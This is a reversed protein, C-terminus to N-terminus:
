SSLGDVYDEFELLDNVYDTVADLRGDWMDVCCVLCVTHKACTSYPAAIEEIGCVRCSFEMYNRMRSRRSARNKAADAYRQEYSQELQREHHPIM